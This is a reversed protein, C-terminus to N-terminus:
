EQVQSKKREYYELLDERSVRWEGGMKAAKIAGNRLLQRATDPHMSLEDALQEVNYILRDRNQNADENM